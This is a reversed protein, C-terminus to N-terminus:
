RTWRATLQYGYSKLIHRKGQFVHLMKTRTRTDWVVPPSSTSTATCSMSSCLTSTSSGATSSSDCIELGRWRCFPAKWPIWRQCRCIVFYWAIVPQGWSSKERKRWLTQHLSEKSMQRWQFAWLLFGCFSMLVSRSTHFRLDSFAMLEIALKWLLNMAFWWVAFMTAQLHSPQVNMTRKCNCM